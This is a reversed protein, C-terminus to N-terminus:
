DGGSMHSEQLFSEGMRRSTVEGVKEGDLYIDGLGGGGVRALREGLQARYRQIAAEREGAEYYARIREPSPRGGAEAIQEILRAQIGFKIAAARRRAEMLENMKDIENQLIKLAEQRAVKNAEIQETAARQTEILTQTAERGEQLSQTWQRWADMSKWILPTKYDLSDAFKLWEKNAEVYEKAARELQNSLGQQAKSLEGILKARTTIARQTAQARTGIFVDEGRILQAMSIIFSTLEPALEEAFAYALGDVSTKLRTMEDTLKAAKEAAEKDFVVGLTHAEERLRKIGDAGLDLMPFLATGTRGFTDLATAARLTENEMGAIAEAVIWFSKEIPLKILDEAKLGLRDFVRMYTAMGDKADSITKALKRTGKEFANLDTGAISAVHRLESLSETSWNIRHSMKEVEDGAAAWAKVLKGVVVGVAAGMAVFAAAVIKVQKGLASASKGVAKMQKSAKDKAVIDIQVKKAM